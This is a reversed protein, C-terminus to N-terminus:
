EDHEQEKRNQGGGGKFYACSLQGRNAGVSYFVYVYIYMYTYNDNKKRRACRKKSGGNDSGDSPTPVIRGMRDRQRLNPRSGHLTDRTAFRKLKKPRPCPYPLDGPKRLMGLIPNGCGRDGHVCTLIPHLGPKGAPPYVYM